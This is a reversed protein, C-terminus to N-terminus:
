RIHNRFSNDENASTDSFKPDMRLISMIRSRTWRWMDAGESCEAQSHSHRNSCLTQCNQRASRQTKALRDNTRIDHIVMFWAAKFEESSWFAHLNGWVRSWSITPHQAMIWVNQAEQVALALSHLSAYIPQPLM